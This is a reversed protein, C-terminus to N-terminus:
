GGTVAAPTESGMRAPRGCPGPCNDPAWLPAVTVMFLLLLTPILLGVVGVNVAVSLLVALV